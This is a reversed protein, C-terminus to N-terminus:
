VLWLVVGVDLLLQYQAIRRFLGDLQKYTARKDLLGRRIYVLLVIAVVLAPMLWNMGFYLYLLTIVGGYGTLFSIVSAKAVNRAGYRLLFTKKSHRADGLADKYDKLLSLSMRGIWWFISIVIAQFSPIGLSLGFMYPLFAGAGSLVIISFVPHRSAQFPKSNYAWIVVLTVVVLMVTLIGVLWALGFSMMALTISYIKLRSLHEKNAGALEGRGNDADIHRDEIDNWIMAVSNLLVVIIILLFLLRNDLQGAVAAGLFLSVVPFVSDFLRSLRVLQSLDPQM